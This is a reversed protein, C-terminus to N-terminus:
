LSKPNKVITGLAALANIGCCGTGRRIRFYGKEGWSEGWTNKISWFDTGNESGYGVMLVAHDLGTPDCMWAPPDFIGSVYYQLLNANLCVSIPGTQTLTDAMAKEDPNVGIFDGVQAVSEGVKADCLDEPGQGQTTNRM